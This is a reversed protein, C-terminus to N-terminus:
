REFDTVGCVIPYKKSFHIIAIDELSILSYKSVTSFALCNIFLETPLVQQALQPTQM